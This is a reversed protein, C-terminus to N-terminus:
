AIVLMVKFGLIEEFRQLVPEFETGYPTSNFHLRLNLHLDLSEFKFQCKCKKQATFEGDNIPEFDIAWLM